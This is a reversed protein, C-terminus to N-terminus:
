EFDEDDKYRKSKSKRQQQQEKNGAEDMEEKEDLLRVITPEVVVAGDDDNGVVDVGENFPVVTASGRRERVSGGMLEGLSSRRRQGGGAAKQRTLEAESLWDDDLSSKFVDTFWEPSTDEWEEWGDLVWAKVDGEIAEWQKRNCGIVGAKVDDTKGRLFFKQAWEFGTELSWFTKRYEKKMLMLFLVFLVLWAGGLSGLVLRATKEKMVFEETPDSYTYYVHSAAFSAPIAMIMNVSWYVGGLEASGRFHVNGTYDVITKVVLRHLFSVFLGAAGDIPFWIHFDGRAIKQLFYLGMDGASYWVFYKKEVLLLMAACLCRLLLLLAGNCVMCAFILTRPLGDSIYGYFDPTEKRKV